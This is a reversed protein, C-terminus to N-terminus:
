MFQYRHATHFNNALYHVTCLFFAVILGGELRVALEVESQMGRLAWVCFALDDALNMKNIDLRFRKTKFCITSMGVDVFGGRVCVM